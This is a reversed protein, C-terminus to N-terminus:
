QGAGEAESEAEGSEDDGRLLQDLRELQRSLTMDVVGEDGRVVIGAPEISEDPEIRSDEPMGPASLLRELVEGHDVLTEPHVAITIRQATRAASLASEAWRALLEPENELRHLVIRETASIVTTILTDRFDALYQDQIQSIQQLLSELAPLREAVQQEVRKRIEAEADELGAQYGEVRGEQKATERMSQAQRKANDLLRESEAEVSKLHRIGAQAFDDLNFGALGTM